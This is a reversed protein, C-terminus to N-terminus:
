GNAEGSAVDPQLVWDEGVADALEGTTLVQLLREADHHDSLRKCRSIGENDLTTVWVDKADLEDIIYGSHSTLLIQKNHKEAFEKLTKILLRQALPHLGQEIDDFMILNADSMHLVSLVALTILTGDSMMSAPLGEGSTTDFFIEHGAVQRDEDYVISNGNASITRKEKMTIKAPHVRVRKAMPVITKLDEEILKHQEPLYTMLYAIVSALGSGDQNVQPPIDLTYSPLAVNQSIAKFYIAKGFAQVAGWDVPLPDPQDGEFKIPRRQGPKWSRNEFEFHDIGSLSTVIKWQPDRGGALLESDQTGRRILERNWNNTETQRALRNLIQIALLLSSKGSGNPGVIATVRGLEIETHAHSKFNTVSIKEIM